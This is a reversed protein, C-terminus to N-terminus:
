THLEQMLLRGVMDDEGGNNSMAQHLHSPFLFLNCLVVVFLIIVNLLFFHPLFKSSLNVAGRSINTKGSYKINNM